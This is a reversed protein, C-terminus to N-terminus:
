KRRISPIRSPASLLRRVRMLLTSDDTAELLERLKSLVREKLRLATSAESLRRHLSDLPSSAGRQLLRPNMHLRLTADEAKASIQSLKQECLRSFESIQQTFLWCFAQVEQQM